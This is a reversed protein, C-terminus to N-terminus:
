GLQEAAWAKVDVGHEALLKGFAKIQAHNAHADFAEFLADVKAPSIGALGMEALYAAMTGEATDSYVHLYHVAQAGMLVARLADQPRLKGDRARRALELACDRTVCGAYVDPDAGRAPPAAFKVRYRTRTEGKTGKTEVPILRVREGPEPSKLVGDPVLSDGVDRGFFSKKGNEHDVEWHYFLESNAFNVARVFKAGAERTDVDFHQDSGLVTGDLKGDGDADAFAFRRWEDPYFYNDAPEDWWKQETLSRMHQYSEGRALTDFLGEIRDQGSVSYTPHQTMIAHAEPYKRTFEAYNDKGRCNAIFVLKPHDGAMEPGEAVSQSGNAGLASHGSYMIVHAKPDGMGALFDLEGKRVTIEVKLPAKQGSPDKVVGRYRRVTDKADKSVLEFGNKKSFYALEEKWFEEHITHHMVLPQTRGKTWAEIPPERPMVRALITDAVARQAADTGKLLDRMARLYFAVQEADKERHLAGLLTDVAARRVVTDSKPAARALDVILTMSACFTRERARSPPGSQAHDLAAALQGLVRGRVASTTKLGAFLGGDRAARRALRDLVAGDGGVGPKDAALKGSVLLRGSSSIEITPGGDPDPPLRLRKGTGRGILGAAPQADPDLMREVAAMGVKGAPLGAVGLGSSSSSSAGASKAASPASAGTSKPLGLTSPHIIPM